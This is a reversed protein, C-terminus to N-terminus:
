RDEAGGRVGVAAEANRTGALIQRAFALTVVLTVAGGIVFPAGLDLRGVFGGAITAFPTLGWSVTRTVAVVGGLMRAPVLLQRLSSWPVNWLSMAGAGIGFVITAVAVNPALGTLLVGAGSVLLGGFMTPGRGFRAVISPAAVAGLLAGVGVGATVLGIAAEPVRLKDLFLLVTVAQAFALAPAVVAGLVALSRLYRHRWLWRVTDVFRDEPAVPAAVAIPESLPRAAAVPLLLALAIPILYGAAGVWLPLALSVAFLVGGIPAAVFGDVAIQLAQIRGNARDLGRRPVVAPVVASTANDFLTEGLGFLLVAAFLAWITLTGTVTLLALLLAVGTRIANAAAMVRRRDFRDVIIGSPVGFVLWPVYALAAIVSIAVPDRTLTTAILPVAIRAIGDALNSFGAAVWLRWFASGLAPERRSDTRGVGASM